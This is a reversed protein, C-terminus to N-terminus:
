LVISVLMFSGLYKRLLRFINTILPNTDEIGAQLTRLLTRIYLVHRAHISLTKLVLIRSSEQSCDLHDLNFLLLSNQKRINDSNKNLLRIM